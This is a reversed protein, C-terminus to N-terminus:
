LGRSRARSRGAMQSDIRQSHAIQTLTLMHRTCCRSSRFQVLIRSAQVWFNVVQLKVFENLRISYHGLEEDNEPDQKSKGILTRGVHHICACIQNVFSTLGRNSRNPIFLCVLLTKLFM